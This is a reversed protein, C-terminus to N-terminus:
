YNWFKKDMNLVKEEWTLSGVKKIYAEMVHIITFAYKSEMYINVRVRATLQLAQMLAILETKQASTGVPLPGHKLLLM